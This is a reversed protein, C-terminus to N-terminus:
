TFGGGRRAAERMASLTQTTLQELRADISLREALIHFSRRYQRWSILLWASTGLLILTLIGTAIWLAMLTTM